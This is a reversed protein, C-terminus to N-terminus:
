EFPSKIHATGNDIEISEEERWKKNDLQDDLFNNLCTFLWESTKKVAPLELVSVLTIDKCIGTRQWYNNPNSDDLHHHRNQRITIKMKRGTPKAHVYSDRIQFIEVIKHFNNTQKSFYKKSFDPKDICLFPTLFLRDPFSLRDDIVKPLGKTLSDPLDVVKRKKFDAWVNNVLAECYLVYYLFASGAYM